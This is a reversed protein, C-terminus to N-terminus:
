PMKPNHKRESYDEDEDLPEGCDTVIGVQLIGLILKLSITPNTLPDSM